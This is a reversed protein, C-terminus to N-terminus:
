ILSIAKKLSNLYHESTWNNKVYEIANNCMEYYNNEVTEIGQLINEEDPSVIVGGGSENIYEMNKPSDNMVIVPVGCAMAELTTRQGGGWYDSTNVCIFSQNLLKAVETRTADDIVKTGQKICENYGNRDHEQVKGVALGKDKFTKAFLEYRKWAAFTAHFIVPYIQEKDLPKFIKENIGFARVVTKGLKKFEDEDIQSEVCIVDFKDVWERKIPGGAFLLIKPIPNDQVKRYKDGNKGNFTCPAEWYLIVDVDHIDDDPEYFVIEYEQALKHIAVSLGDDWREYVKPDSIGQWCFAIQLKRDM